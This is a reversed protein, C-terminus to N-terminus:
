RSKPPLGTKPASLTSAKVYLPAHPSCLGHPVSLQGFDIISQGAPKLRIAKIDIIDSFVIVCPSLSVANPGFFASTGVPGVM